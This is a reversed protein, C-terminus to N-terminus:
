LSISEGHGNAKEGWPDPDALEDDIRAKMYGVMDRVKEASDEFSCLCEYGDGERYVSYYLLSYGALCKERSVEIRHGRYSATARSM